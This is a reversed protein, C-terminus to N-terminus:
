SPAPEADLVSQRGRTRAALLPCVLVSLMAATVMAAAIGPRLRGSAVGVNTIVVVLPLETSAYLAMAVRDSLPKTRHLLM